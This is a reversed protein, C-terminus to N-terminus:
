TARRILPSPLPTYGHSDLGNVRILNERKVIIEERFGADPKYVDHTRRGFDSFRSRFDHAIPLLRRRRHAGGQFVLADGPNISFEAFPAAQRLYYDNRHESPLSQLDKIYDFSRILGMRVLAEGSPTIHVNQGAILLNDTEEHPTMVNDVHLGSDSWGRSSDFETIGTALYDEGVVTQVVTDLLGLVAPVWLQNHVMPFADRLDRVEKDWGWRSEPIDLGELTAPVIRKDQVPDFFNPLYVAIPERLKNEILDIDPVGKERLAAAINENQRLTENYELSLSM